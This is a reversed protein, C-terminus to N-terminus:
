IDGFLNLVNKIAVEHMIRSSTFLRFLQGTNLIKEKKIEGHTVTMVCVGGTKTGVKLNEICEKLTAGSSSYVRGFIKISATYIGLENKITEIMKDAQVALKKDKVVRKKVTKTKM